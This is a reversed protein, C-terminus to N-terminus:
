SGSSSSVVWLTEIKGDRVRYMALGTDSGGGSLGTTREKTMVVSGDSILELVETRANPLHEAIRAFRTRLQAHNESASTLTAKSLGSRFEVQDALLSLMRDINHRNQAAIYERVVDVPDLPDSAQAFGAGTTAVILLLSLLVRHM